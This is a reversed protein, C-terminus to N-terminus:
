GRSPDSLKTQEGSSLIGWPVQISHNDITGTPDIPGEDVPIPPKPLLQDLAAPMPFLDTFAQRLRLGAGVTNSQTSDKADNTGTSRAVDNLFITAPRTTTEGDIEFSTPLSVNIIEVTGSNVETRVFNVSRGDTTRVVSLSGGNKLTKTAESFGPGLKNLRADIAGIVLPCIQDVTNQELSVSGAEGLSVIVPEREPGGTGPYIGGQEFGHLIRIAWERHREQTGPEM